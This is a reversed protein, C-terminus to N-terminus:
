ARVEEPLPSGSPGPGPPDAGRVRRAVVLAAALDGTVNLTTRSMDLLRDIGLIVGIAAPPVGVMGLVVMMMPLSAGPVGAAGMATLVSLIVVLLQQGLTLDIGFVEALFLVTVGEYLATGNM